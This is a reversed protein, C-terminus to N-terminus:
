FKGLLRQEAPTLRDSPIRVALKRVAEDLQNERMVAVYVAQYRPEMTELNLTSSHFLALAEVPRKERLAVLALTALSLFDSPFNKHYSLLFERARRPPLNLLSAYYAELVALQDNQPDLESLRKIAFHAASDDKLKEALRQVERASKVADPDLNLQRLHATM